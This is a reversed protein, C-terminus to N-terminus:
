KVVGLITERNDIPILCGEDNQILWEYIVKIYEGLMSPPLNAIWFLQSLSVTKRKILKKDDLIEALFEASQKPFKNLPFYKNTPFNKDEFSPPPRLNNERWINGGRDYFDNVGRYIYPVIAEFVWRTPDLIEKNNLIIWGHRVFPLHRYKAFISKKDIPGIWHGYVAEGAVLKKDIILCSIRHCNGQWKNTPIGIRTQVIEITLESM